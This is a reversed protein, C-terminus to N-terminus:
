AELIDRYCNVLAEAINDWAYLHVMDEAWVARDGAELVKHALDSPSQNAYLIMPIDQSIAQHAHIRSALVPTGCAAYELVKMPFSNRFFLTDPLHCLGFDFASIYQPVLEHDVLGTFIANDELKLSAALEQLRERDDGDGVFMLRYRRERGRLEKIARLPFDLERESSLVGVYGILVDGERIGYRARVPSPDRRSFLDLDVGSPVLLSPELDEKLKKEYVDKLGRTIFIFGDVFKGLFAESAYAIRRYLAAELGLSLREVSAEIWPSRIDYVIKVEPSCTKKFLVAAQLSSNPYLCHILDIRSRENLARLGRYLRWAYKINGKLSYTDAEIPHIGRPPLGELRGSPGQVMLHLDVGEHRALYKAISRLYTSLALHNDLSVNQAIVVNM